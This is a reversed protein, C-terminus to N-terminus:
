HWLRVDRGNPLLNGKASAVIARFTVTAAAIASITFAMPLTM